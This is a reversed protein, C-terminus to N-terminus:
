AGDGSLWRGTPGGLLDRTWGSMSKVRGLLKPEHREWAPWYARAEEWHKDSDFHLMTKVMPVGALVVRECDLALAVTVCLLGSSGGWSEIPTSSVDVPLRKHKAHWLRDAAPRGADARAAVWIPFLEPHMTCWHDVRGPADRGAHNCALIVDPEFLELAAARDDWLTNASGLVLATLIPPGGSPRPDSQPVVVM